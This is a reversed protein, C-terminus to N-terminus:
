NNANASKGGYIKFTHLYKDFSLGKIGVIQFNHILKDSCYQYNLFFFKRYGVKQQFINFTPTIKDLTPSM